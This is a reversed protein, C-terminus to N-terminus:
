SRTQAHREDRNKLLLPPRGLLLSPARRDYPPTPPSSISSRLRFSFIDPYSSPSDDCAGLDLVIPLSPSSPLRDADAPAAPVSCMWPADGLSIKSAKNRAQLSGREATKVNHNRPPHLHSRATAPTGEHGCASTMVFFFKSCTCRDPTGSDREPADDVGDGSSSPYTGSFISHAKNKNGRTELAGQEQSKTVQNATSLGPLFAWLSKRPAGSALWSCTSYSGM